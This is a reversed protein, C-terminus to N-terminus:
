LNFKNLIVFFFMKWNNELILKVLKVRYGGAPKALNDGDGKEMGGRNHHM